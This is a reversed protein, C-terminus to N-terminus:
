LYTGRTLKTLADILKELDSESVYPAFSLRLVVDGAESGLWVEIGRRALERKAVALDVPAEVVQYAVMNTIRSTTSVPRLWGLEQLARDAAFRLSEGRDWGAELLHSHFAVVVDTMLYPFVDETGLWSFREVMDSSDFRWSHVLPNTSARWEPPVSLAGTGRPFFGWKHLTFAVFGRDFVARPLQATGLTHAGDVVLLCNDPAGRALYDCDLAEAWPSTIHSLVILTPGDISALLANASEAPELDRISVVVLPIRERDAFHKLMIRTSNYEHDTTVIRHWQPRGPSYRCASTLATELAHTANRVFVLGEPPCGIMSALLKRSHALDLDLRERFFTNYDGEWASRMKLLSESVPLPCLGFSGHNLRVRGLPPPFMMELVSSM